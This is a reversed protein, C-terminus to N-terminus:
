GRVRYYGRQVASRAAGNMADGFGAATRNPAQRLLETMKALYDETSNGRSTRPSGIGLASLQDPTLIAEPRGTGNYTLTAGPPLVGGSDYGVYGGGNALSVIGPVNSVSGYRSKIYNIAAAINAVPNYIDMSTGAQHYALFTSMITQMIGRSPDGAAANSDSLNIANPNDGSEYHGIIELDGIWNAPVGTDAIAQKFWSAIAGTNIPGGFVGTGGTPATHGMVWSVVGQWLKAPYKRMADAIGGKGPVESAAKNILRTGIDLLPKALGNTLDKIGNAIDGKLKGFGSVASDWVSTIGGGVDTIIGGGAYHGPSGGGTSVDGFMSNAWNIFKEGGLASVAGPQLVGEGSRMWVLRNDAKSVPGPVIGGTAMGIPSLKPLGVPGAVDNWFRVILGNYVNQIVWDVPTKIANEFGTWITRVKGVVTTFGSELDSWFTTFWSKIQGWVTKVDNFITNWGNKLTSEITTFIARFAAIEANWWATFFAAIANWAAKVASTIANWAATLATQIAHIATTFASLETNWWATFFAKIANWADTVAGTIASWATSLGNEISHLIGTLFSFIANWATEIASLIQQHYKIVVGVVEAFPGLFIGLLLPWNQKIWNWVDKLADLVAGWVTKAVSVIDSWHRVIEVTVGILAVIALTILGIPNADMAIDTLLM